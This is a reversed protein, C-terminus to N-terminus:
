WRVDAYRSLPTSRPTRPSSSTASAAWTAPLRRTPSDWLCTPPYTPCSGDTTLWSRRRPPADVNSPALSVCRSAVVVNLLADRVQKGAATEIWTLAALIQLLALPRETSVQALAALPKTESFVPDPLHLGAAQM